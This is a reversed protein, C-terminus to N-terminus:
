KQMLFYDSGSGAFVESIDEKISFGTEVLVQLVKEPNWYRIDFQDTYCTERGDRTLTSKEEYLYIDNHGPTVTVDRQVLSTTSQFSNFIGRL